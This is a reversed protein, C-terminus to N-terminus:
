SPNNGLKAEFLHSQPFYKLKYVRNPLNNEEQMICWIQKALLAMNFHELVKFGLGGM